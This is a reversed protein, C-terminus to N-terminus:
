IIIVHYRLPIELRWTWWKQKLLPSGLVAKQKGEEEIKREDRLYFFLTKKTQYCIGVSTYLRLPDGGTYLARIM